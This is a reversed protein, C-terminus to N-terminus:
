ASKDSVKISGTKIGIEEIFGLGIVDGGVDKRLYIVSTVDGSEPQADVIAEVVDHYIIYKVKRGDVVATASTELPAM